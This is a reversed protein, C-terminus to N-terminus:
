SGRLSGPTGGAASTEDIWNGADSEHRLRVMTDNSYRLPFVNTNLICDHSTPKRTVYTVPPESMSGRLPCSLFRCFVRIIVGPPDREVTLSHSPNLTARQQTHKLLLCVYRRPLFSTGIGQVRAQCTESRIGPPFAPSCNTGCVAIHASCELDVLNRCRTSGRCNTINYPRICNPDRM